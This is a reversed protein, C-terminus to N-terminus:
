ARASEWLATSSTISRNGPMGLQSKLNSSAICPQTGDKPLNSQSFSEIYSYHPPEVLLCICVSSTGDSEEDSKAGENPEEDGVSNGIVLSPDV